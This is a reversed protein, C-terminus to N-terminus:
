IETFILPAQLPAHARGNLYSRMPGGTGALNVWDIPLYAHEM